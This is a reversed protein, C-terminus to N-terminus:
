QEIYLDETIELEDYFFKLKTETEGSPEKEDDNTWDVRINNRWTLELRSRKHM